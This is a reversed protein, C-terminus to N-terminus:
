RLSGYLLLIKPAPKTSSPLGLSDLSPTRFLAPDLNPLDELLAM